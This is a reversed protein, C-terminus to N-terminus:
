GGRRGGSAPGCAGRGATPSATFAPSFSRSSGQPHAPTAIEPAPPEGHSRRLDEAPEVVGPREVAREEGLVDLPRDGPGLLEPPGADQGGRLRPLDHLAEARHLGRPIRALASVDVGLVDM